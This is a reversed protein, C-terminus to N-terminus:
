NAGHAWDNKPCRRARLKSTQQLLPLLMSSPMAAEELTAKHHRKHFQKTFLANKIDVLDYKEYLRLNTALPVVGHQQFAQPAFLNRMTKGKINTMQCIALLSPMWSLPLSFIKKSSSQSIKQNTPPAPKNNLWLFEKHTISVLSNDSIHNAFLESRQVSKEGVPLM